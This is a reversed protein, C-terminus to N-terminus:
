DSVLQLSILISLARQDGNHIVADPVFTSDATLTVTGNAPLRISYVDSKGIHYVSTGSETVLTMDVPDVPRWAGSLTLIAPAGRNTIVVQRGMWNLPALSPWYDGQVDGYKLESPAPVETVLIGQTVRQPWGQASLAAILTEPTGPGALIYTVHHAACFAALDNGFRQSVSGTTLEGIIPWKQERYPVFGVYAPSQTFQMGVNLQWELGRPSNGSPLILVNPMDGLAEAVTEPKFFPERSWRTWGYVRVNPILALCALIALAFRGIRWWGAGSALYLSAVVSATLAVYM